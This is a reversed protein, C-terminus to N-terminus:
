DINFLTQLDCVFCTNNKSYRRFNNVHGCVARDDSMLKFENQILKFVYKKQDLNLNQIYPRIFGDCLQEEHCLFNFIENISPMLNVDDGIYPLFNIECQLKQRFFKLISFKKIYAIKCLQKTLISNIVINLANFHRKLHLINTKFMNKHAPTKFRGYIDYSSTFKLRSLLNNKFFINLVDILILNVDYLLNTNIYCLNINNNHMEQAIFLFTNIIETKIMLNTKDFIEGGVLLVHSKNKYSSSKIFKQFQNLAYIKQKISSLQKLKIQPCFLCNNNCNNWLIFEFIPLIKDM